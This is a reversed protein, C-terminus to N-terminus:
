ALRGDRVTIVSYFFIMSVCAAGLFALSFILYIHFM